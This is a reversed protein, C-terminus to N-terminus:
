RWRYHGTIEMQFLVDEVRVGRGINHVIKYRGGILAPEASVIGIHPYGLFTWTVVDGPLYDAGDISAPLEMGRRTFYTQLNDVRRHDINRDPKALGFPQPYEELHATMDEHVGLQLDIGIGRFARIVVDTCVGTEVPVDGGPYDLHVYASEYATTVGIQAMASEVLRYAEPTPAPQVSAAQQAVRIAASTGAPAPTPGASVFLIVLAACLASGSLLLARRISFGREGRDAM